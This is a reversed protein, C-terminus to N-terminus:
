ILGCKLQLIFLVLNKFHEESMDATKLKIAEGFASVINENYLTQSEIYDM